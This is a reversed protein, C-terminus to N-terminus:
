MQARSCVLIVLRELNCFSIAAFESEQGFKVKDREPRTATILFNHFNIPFQHFIM